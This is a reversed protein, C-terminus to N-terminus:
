FGEALRLLTGAPDEDIMRHHSVIVRRLNPTEALRRLQQQFRTRDKVMMLRAIRSVRPGGTSNTLSRLVWGVFGPVDPMNFVADNLVLSTGGDHHVELVGETEGTGELHFARVRQDSPFSAYDGDVPVLEAVRRQAARPCLIRLEPYRRKYAPADLRHYANPVVLFAPVGWSEVAAMEEDGLAIASHIVIRGDDLRVLTMVRRLPGRPLAGEVRWLNAELREIPEHPLVNWYSEM